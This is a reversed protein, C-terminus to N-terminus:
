LSILFAITTAGQPESPTWADWDVRLWRAAHEARERGGEGSADEAERYFLAVFGGEGAWGGEDKCNVMNGDVM